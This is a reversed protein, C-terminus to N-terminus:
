ASYARVFRRVSDELIEDLSAPVPPRELGLVLPWFLSEKVLGLFQMAALAPNPVALVGETSRDALFRALREAGVTTIERFFFESLGAVRHAEGIVIRFFAISEPRTLAAILARAVGLLSSSLDGLEADAFAREIVPRTRELLEHVVRRFLDEKTGFHRYITGKSARARRAVNDLSAGAYGHELFVALAADFVAESRPAADKSPRGAM